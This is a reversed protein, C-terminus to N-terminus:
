CEHKIPIQPFPYPLQPYLLDPAVWHSSFLYNGM